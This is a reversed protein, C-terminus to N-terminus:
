SLPHGHNAVETRRTMGDEIRELFETGSLADTGPPSETKWHYALDRLWGEVLTTVYDQFIQISLYRSGKGAFEPAYHSLVDRTKLHAVSAFTGTAVERKLLYIDELDVFIGFLISSHSHDLQRIWEQLTEPSTLSPKVDVLAIPREDRDDVVIDAFM